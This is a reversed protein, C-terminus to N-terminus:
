SGCVGSSWRGSAGTGLSTHQHVSITLDRRESVRFLRRTACMVSCCEIGCTPDLERPDFGRCEDPWGPEGRCVPSTKSRHSRPMRQSARCHDTACRGGRLPIAEAPVGGAIPTAAPGHRKGRPSPISTSCRSNMASAPEPSTAIMSRAASRSSLRTDTRDGSWGLRLGSSTTVCWSVAHTRVPFGAATALNVPSRPGNLPGARSRGHWRSAIPGVRSARSASPRRSTSHRAAVPRPRMARTSPRTSSAISPAVSMSHVESPINTTARSGPRGNRRNRRSWYPHPRVGASRQWPRRRNSCRM